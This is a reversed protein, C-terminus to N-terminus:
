LNKGILSLGLSPLLGSRAKGQRRIYPQLGLFADELKEYLTKDFREFNFLATEPDALDACEAMMAYAEVFEFFTMKVHRDSDVENVQHLMALHFCMTAQRPTFLATFQETDACFQLFDDVTLYIKEGTKISRTAYKNYMTQLLNVKSTLSTDCDENYLRQWKWKSIDYKKMETKSLGEMLRIVAESESRVLGSKYYKDMAVRVLLELFEHRIVGYNPNFALVEPTYNCATIAIDLDAIRFFRDFLNWQQFLETIVQKTIM